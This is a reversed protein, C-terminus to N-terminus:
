IVNLYYKGATLAPNLTRDIVALIESVMRKPAKNPPPPPHTHTGHSTFLIYPTATLDNPMIISFIVSCPLKELKGAGNPHDVGKSCTLISNVDM